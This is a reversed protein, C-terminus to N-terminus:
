KLREKTWMYLHIKITSLFGCCVKRQLPLLALPRMYSKVARSFDSAYIVFISHLALNENRKGMGETAVLHSQWYTQWLAITSSAPTKMMVGHNEMRM